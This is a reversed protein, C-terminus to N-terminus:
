VEVMVQEQLRRLADAEEGTATHIEFTVDPKPQGGRFSDYGFVRHLVGLAESTEPGPPDSMDPGTDPLAM